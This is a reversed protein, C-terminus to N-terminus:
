VFPRIFPYRPNTILRCIYSTSPSRKTVVNLRAGWTDDLTWRERTGHRILAVKELWKESVFFGLLEHSNTPKPLPNPVFGVFIPFPHSTTKSSPPHSATIHKNKPSIKNPLLRNILPSSQQIHRPNQPLNKIFSRISTNLQCTDRFELEQPYMKKPCKWAYQIHKQEWFINSHSTDFCGKLDCSKFGFPCPSALLPSLRSPCTSPSM